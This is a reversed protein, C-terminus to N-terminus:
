LKIGTKKSFSMSEPMGRSVASPRFANSSSSLVVSAPGYVEDVLYMVDYAGSVCTDQVYMRCGSDIITEEM